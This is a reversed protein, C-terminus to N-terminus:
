AFIFIDIISKIYSNIFPDEIKENELNILEGSFLLEELGDFEGKKVKNLFLSETEINSVNLLAQLQRLRYEIEDKNEIKLDMVNSLAKNSIKKARDKLSDTKLEIFEEENDINKSLFDAITNYGRPIWVFQVFWFSEIRKKRMDIVAQKNDSIFVCNWNKNKIAIEVAKNLGFVEAEYPSNVKTVFNYSNKQIDVVGISAVKTKHDFSADSFFINFNNNNM